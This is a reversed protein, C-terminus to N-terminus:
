NGTFVKSDKCNYRRVVKPKKNEVAALEWINFMQSKQYHSVGDSKMAIKTQTFSLDSMNDM